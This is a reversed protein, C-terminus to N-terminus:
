APIVPADNRFGGVKPPRVGPTKTLRKLNPKHEPNPPAGSGAPAGGGGVVAGSGVSGPASPLHGKQANASAAANAGQSQPFQRRPPNREWVKLKPPSKIASATWPLKKKLDAYTAEDIQIVGRRLSAFKILAERILSQEPAVAIVGYNKDLVEFEIRKGDVFLPM